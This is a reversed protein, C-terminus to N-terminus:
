PLTYSGCKYGSYTLHFNCRKPISLAAQPNFSSYKHAEAFKLLACLCSPNAAVQKAVACCASSVPAEPDKGAEACPAMKMAAEEVGMKGCEGEGVVSGISLGIVASIIVFVKVVTATSAAM